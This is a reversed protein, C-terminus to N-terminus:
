DLVPQLDEMKKKVQFLLSYFGKERQAFPVEVVLHTQFLELVYKFLVKRREM